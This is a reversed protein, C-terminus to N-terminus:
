AGDARRATGLVVRADRGEPRVHMTMGEVSDDVRDALQALLNLLALRVAPEAAAAARRASEESTGDALSLVRALDDTCQEVHEGLDLFLTDHDDSSATM